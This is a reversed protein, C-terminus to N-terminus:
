ELHDKLSEIVGQLRAGLEFPVEASDLIELAEVLMSMARDLPAQASAPDADQNAAPM